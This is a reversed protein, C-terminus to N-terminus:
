LVPQIDRRFFDHVIGIIGDLHLFDNGVQLFGEGSGGNQNDADAVTLALGFGSFQMGHGAYLVKDTVLLCKSGLGMDREPVHVFGHSALATHFFHDVALGGHCVVVIGVNVEPASFVQRLNQEIRM